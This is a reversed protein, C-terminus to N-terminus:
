CHWISHMIYAEPVYFYFYTVFCSFDLKISGVSGYGSCRKLPLEEVVLKRILGLKNPQIRHPSRNWIQIQGNHYRTLFVKHIKNM